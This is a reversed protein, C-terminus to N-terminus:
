RQPGARPKAHHAQQNRLENDYYSPLRDLSNSSSMGPRLRSSGSREDDRSSNSRKKLASAMTSGLEGFKSQMVKKSAM